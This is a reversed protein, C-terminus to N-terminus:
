YDKFNQEKMYQLEIYVREIASKPSKFEGVDYYNGNFVYTACWSIPKSISNFRWLGILNDKTLEFLEEFNLHEM